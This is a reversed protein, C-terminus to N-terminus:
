RDDLNGKRNLTTVFPLCRHQEAYDLGYGVVFEDPIEFGIYDPIFDNERRSPKNLLVCTKLGAPSRRKLRAALFSLTLGTDCIDDVMLIYKGALELSADLQLSIKGSSQDADGYSAARIFDVEPSLGNEALRRILDAAFVFAGKLVVVVVVERGALEEAIRAALQATRLQIQLESVFPTSVYTV